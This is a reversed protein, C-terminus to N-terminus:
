YLLTLTFNDFQCSLLSFNVISFSVSTTILSDELIIPSELSLPLEQM